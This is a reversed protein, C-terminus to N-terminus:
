KSVMSQVEGGRLQEAFKRFFEDLMKKATAEILRSGVAAILGGVQVDAECHVGTQGDKEALAIKATGKVFGPGGKVAIVLTCSEPVKLDSFHAKGVHSGKWGAVGIKLHVDYSHEGTKVMRECGDIVRELVGPDTIAAFVKERSAPLKCTATLKM